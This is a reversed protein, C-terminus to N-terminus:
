RELRFRFMRSPGDEPVLYLDRGKLAMGEETYRIGRDTAGAARSDLLTMSPWAFWDIAGVKQGLAGSGVLKGAAFKIDQYRTASPNNVVRTQRGERDFVYLQRSDWNGAVLGSGSAAVCGIHDAVAIKRRVTLTNKDIEVLVASSHAKYEAVPVWLSNGHKAMGGPHYRPGDTIELRRRLKGTRRDFEHIYGKHVITDVSTVWVTRADLDMGQVHFLEGDLPLVDLLRAREIPAAPQSSATAGSLLLLATAAALVIRRTM